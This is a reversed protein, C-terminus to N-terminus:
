ALPKGCGKCFKATAACVTGCESCVKQLADASSNESPQSAPAETKVPEDVPASAMIANDQAPAFTNPESKPAFTNSDPKPAFTNSEPKPAFTNSNPKFANNNPAFNNNSPAAFPSAAFGNNVPNGFGQQGFQNQPNFGNNPAFQGQPAFGQQPAKKSRGPVVTVETAREGSAKALLSIGCIIFLVAILITIIYYSIYTIDRFKLNDAGNSYYKHLSSDFYDIMDMVPSVTMIASILLFLSSFGQGINKKTKSSFAAVLLAISMVLFVYFNESFKLYNKFGSVFMYDLKKTFIMNYILKSLPELLVGVISLILTVISFFRVLGNANTLKKYAKNSADM